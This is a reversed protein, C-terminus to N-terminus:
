VTFNKEDDRRLWAGVRQAPGDWPLGGSTVLNIQVTAGVPFKLMSREVADRYQGQYTSRSTWESWHAITEREAHEANIASPIPELYSNSHQLAFFSTEGEHVLWESEIDGKECRLQVNTRLTIRHPGTVASWTCDELQELRPQANGYDFRPAFCTRMRSRGAVGRVIRVVSSHRKGLLCSTPSRSARGRPRLSPRKWCLLAPFIVASRATSLSPLLFGAEM